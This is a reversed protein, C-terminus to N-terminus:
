VQAHCGGFALCCRGEAGGGMFNMGIKEVVDDPTM